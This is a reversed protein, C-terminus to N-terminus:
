MVLEPEHTKDETNDIGEFIDAPTMLSANTWEENNVTLKEDVVQSPSSNDKWEKEYLEGLKIVYAEQLKLLEEESNKNAACEEGVKDLASNLRECMLTSSQEAGALFATEATSTIMKEVYNMLSVLELLIKRQEDVVTRQQVILEEVEDLPSIKSNTLLLLSEELLVMLDSMAKRYEQSTDNIAILVQTLLQSSSHATLTCAQRILAEHTM